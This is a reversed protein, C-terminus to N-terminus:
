NEFSYFNNFSKLILENHKKIPPLCFHKDGTKKDVQIITDYYSVGFM